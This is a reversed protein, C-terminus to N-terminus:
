LQLRATVRRLGLGGGLLMAGALALLWADAGTAPLQDRSQAATTGDDTSQAGQTGASPSTNANGGGGGNGGSNGNGNNSGSGPEGALPDQYQNNGADQALAAAPLAAVLAALALTLLLTRVV